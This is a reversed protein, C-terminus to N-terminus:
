QDDFDSRLRDAAAQCAARVEASRDAEALHEIRSLLELQGRYGALECAAARVEPDSYALLGQDRNDRSDARSRRLESAQQPWLLALFAVTIAVQFLARVPPYHRRHILLWRDIVYVVVFLTFTAVPVLPVWVPLHGERASRWLYDHLLLAVSASALLMIYLVVRVLWRRSVGHPEAM